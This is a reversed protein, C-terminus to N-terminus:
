LSEDAFLTGFYCQGNILTFLALKSIIYAYLRFKAVIENKISVKCVSFM